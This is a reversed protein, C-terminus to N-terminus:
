AARRQGPLRDLLGIRADLSIRGPGGLLLALAMAGLALNIEFGDNAVFLGNQGTTSAIAVAMVVVITVSALPTLLGLLLLIGAALEGVGALPALVEGPSLGSAEFSDATADLGPGDFSGFLKQAGHAVFVVALTLRLALMSLDVTPSRM